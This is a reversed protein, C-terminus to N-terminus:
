IPSGVVASAMQSRRRDLQWRRTSFPGDRRLGSPPGEWVQVGMLAVELAVASRRKAGPRRREHHGIRTNVIASIRLMTNDLAVLSPVGEFNYSSTLRFPPNWAGSPPKFTYHIQGNIGIPKVYAVGITGDAAVAITPSHAQMDGIIAPSTWGVGDTSMIYKIRGADEYVAHLKNGPGVVVKTGAPSSMHQGAATPTVVSILSRDTEEVDELELELEDDCGTCLVCGIIVWSGVIFQGRM